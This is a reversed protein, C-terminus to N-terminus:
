GLIQARLDDGAKIHKKTAEDLLTKLHAVHDDITKLQALSGSVEPTLFGIQAAREFASALNPNADDRVILDDYYINLPVRISPANKACNTFIGKATEMKQPDDSWTTQSSDLLAHMLGVANKSIIEKLEKDAFPDDSKDFLTEVYLRMLTPPYSTTGWIRMEWVHSCQRPADEIVAKNEIMAAFYHKWADHDEEPIHNALATIIDLCNHSLSVGDRKAILDIARDIAHLLVSSQPQFTLHPNKAANYRTGNLAENLKDFNKLTALNIMAEFARHQLAEGYPLSTENQAVRPCIFINMLSNLRNADATRYADITYATFNLDTRELTAITELPSILNHTLASEIYSIALHPYTSWLQFFQSEDYHPAASATSSLM